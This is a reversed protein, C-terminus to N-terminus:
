NLLFLKNVIIYLCVNLIQALKRSM